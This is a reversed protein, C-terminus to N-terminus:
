SASGGEGTVELLGEAGMREVLAVAVVDDFLALDDDHVFERTALHGAAAPAFTEVLRDLRLFAQADLALAHREGRDRELVVEAEVVLERAHGARRHGLGLLEVLDVLELDHRDRGVPGHNALVIRIEDIAVLLALEVGQDVLDHFQLVCAPGDEDARHRDLLGLLEALQELAAADLVLHQVGLEVLLFRADDRLGASGPATVIEVFMAPRPM